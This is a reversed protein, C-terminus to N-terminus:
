DISERALSIALKRLLVKSLNKWLQIQTDSELHSIGEYTLEILEVEGDAIM